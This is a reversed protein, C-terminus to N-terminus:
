RVTPTPPNVIKDSVIKRIAKLVVNHAFAEQEWPQLDKPMQAVIEHAARRAEIHHTSVPM